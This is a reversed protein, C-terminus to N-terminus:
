EPKHHFVPMREGSDFLWFDQVGNSNELFANKRGQLIITELDSVHYKITYVKYKNQPPDRTSPGQHLDLRDRRSRPRSM